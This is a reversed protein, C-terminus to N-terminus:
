CFTFLADDVADHRSHSRFPLFINYDTKVLEESALKEILLLVSATPQPRVFASLLNITKSITRCCIEKYKM